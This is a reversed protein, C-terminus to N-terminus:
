GSGAAGKIARRARESDDVGLKVRNSYRFDFEHMYAQLHNDGCHQYVGTMGRKFIGFFGEVTNTTIKEGDEYRVYEENSHTVSKHGFYRKGPKKYHHAEDTNLMSEEVINNALVDRITKQSFDSVVTSKARGGREVLSIIKRKTATGRQHQWGKGTVFTMDPKGIFTEDVEVTKGRGGLPEDDYPPEDSRPHSAGHVMRNSLLGLRANAHAPSGVRGEQERGHSSFRAGMQHAAFPKFEMVSGVTVTFPERCANCQYMGARHSEGQVLTAQDIVGCHPCVPGNPWRIAEFHERAADEDHFIPDTLNPLASM